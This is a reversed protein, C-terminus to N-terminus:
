CLYASHPLSSFPVSFSFYHSAPPLPPGPFPPSCYLDKPFLLLPLSYSFTLSTHIFNYTPFTTPHLSPLFYFSLALPFPSILDEQTQAEPIDVPYGIEGV